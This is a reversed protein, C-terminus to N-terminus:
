MDEDSLNVNRYSMRICEREKQLTATEESHKLLYLVVSAGFLFWTGIEVEINAQFCQADSESLVNYYVLEAFFSELDDCFDNIM